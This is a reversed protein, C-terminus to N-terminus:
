ELRYAGHDECSRSKNVGTSYDIGVELTASAVAAAGTPVVVVVVIYLLFTLECCVTNEDMLLEYDQVSVM